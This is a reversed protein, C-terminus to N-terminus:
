SKSSIDNVIQLVDNIKAQKDMFNNPLNVRTKETMKIFSEQLLCGIIINKSNMSKTGYGHSTSLSHTHRTM